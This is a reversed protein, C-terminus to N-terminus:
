LLNPFWPGSVKPKGVLQPVFRSFLYVCPICLALSALTVVCGLVFVNLFPLSIAQQAWEAVRANIFHYFVGNLFILLLTNQGLWLITRQTPACQALLLICLSGALATLPFLLFNGHGSFMIVVSNHYNFNFPGTNLNFTFAVILLFALAAPLASAVPLNELLSRHRKLWIGVLYFAYMTVAEHIFLYNWGLVRGKAPNFIDFYLNFWYGVVYFLLAAVVIRADSARLFRFVAFHVLEVSFILLIFWSPVCFLPLGSLTAILGGAYGEASPLKLNFFEGPIFAALGMFVATFFVFPLLRTLMRAKLFRTFCMEVDSERAVYGALVVFLVMHFSYVFRYQIEASPNELIMLREIFHGYYVLAMAYFRAMDILHIRKGQETAHMEIEGNIKADRLPFPSRAGPKDADEQGSDVRAGAQLYSLGARIGRVM